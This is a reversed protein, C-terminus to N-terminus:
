KSLYVINNKENLKYGSPKYKNFYYEYIKSRKNKVESPIMMDSEGGRNIILIDPHYKKIFENAVNVVKSLINLYDKINVKNKEEKIDDELEKIRALTIQINKEKQSILQNTEPSPIKDKKLNELEKTLNDIRKKFVGIMHKSQAINTKIATDTGNVEFGLEYSNHIKTPINYKKIFQKKFDEEDKESYSKGMEMTNNIAEIFQEEYNTNFIKDLSGICSVWDGIGIETNKGNVDFSKKYVGHTKKDFDVHSYDINGIEKLIDTLKIM